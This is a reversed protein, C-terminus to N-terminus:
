VGDRVVGMFRFMFYILAMALGLKVLNTKDLAETLAYSMKIIAASQLLYKAFQNSFIRSMAVLYVSELLGGSVSVIFDQLPTGPDRLVYGSVLGTHMSPNLNFIKATIYHGLEHIPASFLILATAIAPEIPWLKHM